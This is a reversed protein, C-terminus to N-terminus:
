VQMVRSIAPPQCVDGFASTTVQSGWNGFLWNGISMLVQGSESTSLRLIRINCSLMLSLMGNATYFVEEGGVEEM